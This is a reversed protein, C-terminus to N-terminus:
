RLVLASLWSASATHVNSDEETERASSPVGPRNMFTLLLSVSRTLWFSLSASSPMSRTMWTASGVREAPGASKM